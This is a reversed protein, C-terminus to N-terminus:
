GRLGEKGALVAVSSFVALKDKIAQYIAKYPQEADIGATIEEAIVQEALLLATLQVTQAKDREIIGATRDALRSLATFYRVANRSGQATAYDVLRQIADTEQRRIEKGLSRTDQWIPSARELLLARMAHFAEVYRATFITGREGTAKNAVFECGMETLLYHPREEGKEDQYTSPIFFKVPEFNPRNLYSYYTRISRVLHKHQRGLMAAVDRSDAVLQGRHEFVPLPTPTASVPSGTQKAKTM